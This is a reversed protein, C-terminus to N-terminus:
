LVEEVGLPPDDPDAAVPRGGGEYTLRIGVRDALREVAEVFSVLDIKQIFKIVDGGEGCGFCHFTGHTPRVNFSPTKENHFPCLGKLSGGGARRLAVYEGVVEDIRNRERVEAIDSERIRGAVPVVITRGGGAGHPVSPSM